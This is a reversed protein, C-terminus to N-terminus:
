DRPVPPPTGPRRWIVSWNREAATGCGRYSWLLEQNCRTCLEEVHIREVGGARLQHVAAARLDAHVRHAGGDPPAVISIGEDSSAAAIRGAVDEGVEYCCPGISPGIWARPRGPGSLEALTAALVGAVLGRWGAHAAAVGSTDALLVPVCDATAVALAIDTSSSVLADAEGAEGPRAEVVHASHVQKLWSVTTAPVLAGDRLGTPERPAGRGIFRVEVDGATHRASWRPTEITSEDAMTAFGPRM